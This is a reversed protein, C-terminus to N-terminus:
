REACGAIAGRARAALESATEVGRRLSDKGRCCNRRNRRCYPARDAAASRQINWPATYLCRNGVSDACPSIQHVRADEAASPSTQCIMGSKCDDALWRSRHAHYFVPLLTISFRCRQSSGHSGSDDESYDQDDDDGYNEPPPALRGNGSACCFGRWQAARAQSQWPLSRPADASWTM